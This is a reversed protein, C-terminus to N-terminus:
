PVDQGPAARTTGLAALLSATIEAELRDIDTVAADLRREINPNSGSADTIHLDLSVRDGSTDLNATVIGRVGLYAAIEENTFETDAYAAAAESGAVYFGMQAAQQMVNRYLRDTAETNQAVNAGPAAVNGRFPMIAISRGDVAVGKITVVPEFNALQNEVSGPAATQTAIAVPPANSGSPALIVILALCASAAVGAVSWALEPRRFWALLTNARAPAGARALQRAEAFAWAVDPHERLQPTLAMVADCRALGDIDHTPPAENGAEDALWIAAIDERDTTM